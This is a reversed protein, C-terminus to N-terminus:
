WEKYAVGNLGVGASMSYVDFVDRGEKPHEPPSDYNRKAWTDQAPVRAPAFPDRPLRRLFYIKPRTPKKIDEVGSVLVDLRPPYGSEDANTEIRGTDSALKYADIAERTQRLATRLEQEKGRQIAIQTLPLAASALIGVIAVTIVLEILTFGPLCHRDTKM